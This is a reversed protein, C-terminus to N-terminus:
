LSNREIYNFPNKSIEKKNGLVLKAAAEGMEKYDTSIVMIGLLAKLPTENYLILDIDKEKCFKILCVLIRM